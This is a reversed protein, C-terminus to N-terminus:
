AVRQVPKRERERIKDLSDLARQLQVGATEIVTVLRAQEEVPDAPTSPLYGTETDFWHKAVHFGADRALRFLMLIEELELKEDRDPNLCDNLRKAAEPVPKTPWFMHGVAKPGGVHAVIANLAAYVDEVFLPPQSM